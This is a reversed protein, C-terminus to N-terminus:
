QCLDHLAKECKALNVSIANAVHVVDGQVEGPSSNFRDKTTETGDPDDANQINELVTHIGKRLESMDTSGSSSALSSLRVQCYGILSEMALVQDLLAQLRPNVKYIPLFHLQSADKLMFLAFQRKEVAVSLLSENFNNDDDVLKCSEDENAFTYLLLVFAKRLETLYLLTWKADGGNVHPPLWQVVVAMVVGSITAAIRNLAIGNKGGAGLYVELAVLAQTASCYMGVCGHDQSYGMRTKSGPELAYFYTFMLSTVTLWAIFGYPNINSNDHYSGSCVIIGLWASFAGMCNGLTRQTAKKVTGEMTPTIAFAYSIMHWGSYVPGVYGESPTIRFDAYRDWYISMCMLGVYGAVLRLSWLITTYNWKKPQVLTPIFQVLRISPLLPLAIYKVVSQFSQLMSVRPSEKPHHLAHLYAVTKLLARKTAQSIYQVYSAIPSKTHDKTPDVETGDSENMTTQLEFLATEDNTSLAEACAELITQTDQLLALHVESDIVIGTIPSTCSGNEKTSTALLLSSLILHDTELVLSKLPTVLDQNWATFIRPEFLTTQAISGENGLANWSQLLSYLDIQEGSLVQKTEKLVHPLLRRSIEHRSTRFPPVCIAMVIAAIGWSLAIWVNRWVALPNETGSETWMLKVIETGGQQVLPKFTLGFTGALCIFANCFGATVTYYKGSYLTTMFLAYATFVLVFFTDSQVAARLLMTTFACIMLIAVILSPLIMGLTYMLTPLSISLSAGLAGPMLALSPPVVHPIDAISLCYGLFTALGIRLTVEMQIEDYKPLFFM